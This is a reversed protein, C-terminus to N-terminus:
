LHHGVPTCTPQGGAGDQAGVCSVVVVTLMYPIVIVTMMDVYADECMMDVYTDECMM